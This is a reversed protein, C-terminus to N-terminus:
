QDTLMVAGLLHHDLGKFFKSCSNLKCPRIQLHCFNKNLTIIGSGVGAYFCYANSPKIEKSRSQEMLFGIVDELQM